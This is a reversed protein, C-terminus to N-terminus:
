RDEYHVYFQYPPEQIKDPISPTLEKIRNEFSKIERNMERISRNVAKVDLWFTGPGVGRMRM